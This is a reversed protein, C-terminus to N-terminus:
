KSTYPTIITEIVQVNRLEMHSGICNLFIIESLASPIQDSYTTIIANIRTNRKNDIEIINILNLPSNPQPINKISQPETVSEAPIKYKM